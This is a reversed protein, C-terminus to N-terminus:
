FIMRIPRARTEEITFVHAARSLMWVLHLDVLNLFILVFIAFICIKSQINSIFILISRIRGSEIFCGLTPQRVFYFRSICHRRSIFVFVFDLNVLFAGFHVLALVAFPVDDVFTVREVLWVLSAIDSFVCVCIRFSEANFLIVLNSKSIKINVLKENKRTM